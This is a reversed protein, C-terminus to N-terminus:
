PIIPLVQIDFIIDAATAVLVAASQNSITLTVADDANVFATISPVGGGATAPLQVRPTVVPQGNGLRAGNVVVAAPTFVAGAAIAQNAIPWTYTARPIDTGQTSERM